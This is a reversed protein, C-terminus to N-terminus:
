SGSGPCITTSRGSGFGLIVERMGTVPGRKTGCRILGAPYFRDGHVMLWSGDDMLRGM